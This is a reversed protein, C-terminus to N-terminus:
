NAIKSWMSDRIVSTNFAILLILSNTVDAVGLLNIIVLTAILVFGSNIILKNTIM